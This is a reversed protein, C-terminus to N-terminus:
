GPESSGSGNGSPRDSVGVSGSAAHDAARADRVGFAQALLKRDKPSIAPWEARRDVDPMGAWREILKAEREATSIARWGPRPGISRRTITM